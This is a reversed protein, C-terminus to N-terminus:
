VPVTYGNTRTITWTNTSGASAMSAPGQQFNEGISAAKGDNAMLIAYLTASSSSIAPNGMPTIGIYESVQATLRPYQFTQPYYNNSLSAAQVISPDFEGWINVTTFDSLDFFVLSDILLSGAGASASAYISYSRPYNPLMTNGLYIWEAAGGATPLYTYTNTYVLPLSGLGYYRVKISFVSTSPSGAVCAYVGMRRCDTDTSISGLASFFQGSAGPAFQLVSGGRGYTKAVTTFGTATLTDPSSVIIGSASESIGIGYPKSAGTGVNTVVFNTPSLSSAASLSIAVVSGNLGTASGSTSTYLWTGLRTLVMNSSMAWKQGTGDPINTINRSMELSTNWVPVQLPSAASSISAGQPSYKLNVATVSEGNNWRNAQDLLNKLALANAYLHAASSGGISVPIEEVVDDYAGRSGFWNTSLQSIKPTWGTEIRYWGLTGPSAFTITTTGDTLAAYTTM